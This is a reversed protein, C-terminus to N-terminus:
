RTTEQIESRARRALQGLVHKTFVGRSRFTVDEKMLEFFLNKGVYAIATFLACALVFGSRVPAIEQKM